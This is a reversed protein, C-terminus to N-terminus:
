KDLSVTSEKMRDKKGSIKDSLKVFFGRAEEIEEEQKEIVKAQLGEVLESLGSVSQQLNKVDENLKDVKSMYKIFQDEDNQLRADLDSTDVKVKIM